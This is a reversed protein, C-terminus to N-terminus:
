AKSGTAARPRGEGAGIRARAAKVATSIQIRWASFMPRSSFPASGRIPAFFPHGEVRGLPEGPQPQGAGVADAGDGEALQQVAEAAGNQRQLGQGIDHTPAAALAEGQGRGRFDLSLQLAALAEAGPQDNEPVLAIRGHQRGDIRRRRQQPGQAVRGQQRPGAERDHAGADSRGATLADGAPQRLLQSLCAM